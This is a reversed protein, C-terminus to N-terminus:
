VRVGPVQIMAVMAVDKVFNYGRNGGACWVFGLLVIFVVLWKCVATIKDASRTLAAHVELCLMSPTSFPFADTGTDADLLSSFLSVGGM